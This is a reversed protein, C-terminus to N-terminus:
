VRLRGDLWRRLTEPRLLGLQTEVLRGDPSILVTYPLAGSSNGLERALESGGAAAALLPIDLQFEAQFRRMAELRDIGIGVVTLNRTAFARATAQLLPMEEVCPPCWTAWFNLLLWRGQWQALPQPTGQLDDFSRKFLSEPVPTHGPRLFNWWAAAAGALLAAAGVGIFLARRQPGHHQADEGCGDDDGAADASVAPEHEPNM